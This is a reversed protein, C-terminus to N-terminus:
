EGSGGRTATQTESDFDDISDDQLSRGATLGARGPDLILVPRAKELDRLPAQDTGFELTRQLVQRAILIEAEPTHRVGHTDRWVLRYTYHDVEVVRGRHDRWDWNVTNPPAGRGGLVRVDRGLSDRIELRWAEVRETPGLHGIVFPISPAQYLTVEEVPPISDQGVPTFLHRRLAPDAIPRLRRVEVQDARLSDGTVKSALYRARDLQDSDAAIVLGTGPADALGSQLNHVGTQYDASYNGRPLESEPHAETMGATVDWTIQDSWTSDLVGIRWRPLRRVQDMDVGPAFVRRLRKTRVLATDVAAAVHFHTRRPDPGTLRVPEPDPLVPAVAQVDGPRYPADTLPTHDYTVPAAPRGPAHFCLVIGHTGSAADALESRPQTFTYEFWAKSTLTLHLGVAWHDTQMNGLLGHGGLINARASASLRTRLEDDVLGGAIQFSEQEWSLGVRWTAPLYVSDDYGGISINPTHPNELVVGATVGELPLSYAAALSLTPVTRSLSGALLPDDASGQSLDMDDKDFSRQNVGLSAGLSLGAVVRRGYGALLQREGWLPTSLYNLGLSLGGFSRRGAWILSGTNLDGTNELLGWHLVQFGAAIQPLTMEDLAPNVGYAFPDLLDAPNAESGLRLSQAGAPTAMTVLVSLLLAGLWLATHRRRGSM